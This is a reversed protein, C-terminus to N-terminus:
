SVLLSQKTYLFLLPLIISSLWRSLRQLVQVRGLGIIEVAWKDEETGNDKGTERDGGSLM